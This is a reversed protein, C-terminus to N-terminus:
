IKQLGKFNRLERSYLWQFKILINDIGKFNSFDKAIQDFGNFDM